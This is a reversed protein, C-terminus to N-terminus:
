KVTLKRTTTTAAFSTSAVPDFLVVYTHHGRSDHASITFKGQRSTVIKPGALQLLEHKTLVRDLVVDPAGVSATRKLALSPGAVGSITVLGKKVKASTIKLTAVGPGIVVGPSNASTMQGQADHATVVCLINYDIVTKPVRLKQTTAIVPGAGSYTWQYSFSVADASWSGTNCTLTSNFNPQGSISPAKGPVPASIAAAAFVLSVIAGLILARATPGRM